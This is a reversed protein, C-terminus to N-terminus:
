LSFQVPDKQSVLDTMLIQIDTEQSAETFVSLVPQGLFDIWKFNEGLLVVNALRPGGHVFGKLHLQRLAEALDRWRARAMDLPVPTGVGGLIHFWGLVKGREVVETCNSSPAVVPCNQKCARKM